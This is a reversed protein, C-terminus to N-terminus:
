NPTMENIWMDHSFYYLSFFKGRRLNFRWSVLYLSWLSGTSTSVCYHIVWLCLSEGSNIGMIFPCSFCLGGPLRWFGHDGVKAPSDSSLTLTWRKPGQVTGSGPLALLGGCGTLLVNRAPVIWCQTCTAEEARDNADLLHTSLDNM